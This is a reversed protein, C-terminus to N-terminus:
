DEIKPPVMYDSIAAKFPTKFKSNVKKKYWAKGEPKATQQGAYFVANKFRGSQELQKTSREGSTSPLNAMITQGDVQKYYFTGLKGSAGAAAPNNRVIAM